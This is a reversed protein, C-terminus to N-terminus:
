ASPKELRSPKAPEIQIGDHVHVSISKYIDEKRSMFITLWSFWRNIWHVRKMLRETMLYDEPTLLSQGCKPCPMNIYALLLKESQGTHPIEFDCSPNDCVIFNQQHIEILKRM